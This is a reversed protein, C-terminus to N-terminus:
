IWSQSLDHRPPGPRVRLPEPVFRTHALSQLVNAHHCEEVEDSRFEDPKADRACSSSPPPSGLGDWVVDEEDESGFAEGVGGHRPVLVGVRIVEVHRDGAERVPELRAANPVEPELLM